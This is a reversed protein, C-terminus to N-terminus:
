ESGTTNFPVEASITGQENSVAGKRVANCCRLGKSRGNAALLQPLKWLTSAVCGNLGNLVSFIAASEVFAGDEVRRCLPTVGGADEGAPRERQPHSGTRNHLVTNAALCNRSLAGSMCTGAAEASCHCCTCLLHAPAAATM